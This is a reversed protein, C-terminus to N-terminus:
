NNFNESRDKLEQSNKIKILLVVGWSSPGKEHTQGKLTEESFQEIM